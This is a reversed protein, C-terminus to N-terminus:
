VMEMAAHEVFTRVTSEVENGIGAQEPFADALLKTIDALTRTGDCLTWIMSATENLYLVTTKGSHYLLIENDLTELRYDTKRRPKKAM